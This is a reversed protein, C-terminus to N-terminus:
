CHIISSRKRNIEIRTVLRHHTCRFSVLFYRSFLHVFSASAFDLGKSTAKQPSAKTLSLHDTYLRFFLPFPSPFLFFEPYVPQKDVLVIAMLVNNRNVFPKLDKVTKKSHIRNRICRIIEELIIKIWVNTSIM